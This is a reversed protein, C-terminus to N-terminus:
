KIMLMNKTESIDGSNLRYFYVGSSSQNNTYQNISFPIEYVGPQLKENVLTAIDKGLVDFIKLTVFRSDKIQFRIITSPNFPNPYNQFLKYADPIESSINKVSTNLVSTAWTTGVRIGDVKVSSYKLGNQAYSNSLIVQGNDTMDAGTVSFAGPVSPESTPVGSSFIFVKVSDNNTGTVFSYKLVILYTINTNYTNNSYVTSAGSSKNIGFNFTSSTIKQIYLLTNNYTQGGTPNFGINFGSSATSSMSDVSFMFAMYLNGTTQDTFSHYVVDGGSTANNMSVCNGIGSGSYGTYTLGPSTVKVNNSTNLGTPNWNGIGELSDRVPYNFDDVFLNQSNVAGNFNILIVLAIILTYIPKM